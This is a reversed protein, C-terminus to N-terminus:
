PVLPVTKRYTAQEYRRRRVVDAVNDIRIAEVQQASAVKSKQSYTNPVIPLLEASAATDYADHIAQAVTDIVSTKVRNSTPEIVGADPFPLYFRGWSRRVPVIETVSCAVQPAMPGTTGNGVRSITRTFDPGSSPEFPGLNSDPGSTVWGDRFKMVYAEVRTFAHHTDMHSQWAAAVSEVMNAGTNYDDITWSDDIAGATWNMLDFTVKADDGLDGSV